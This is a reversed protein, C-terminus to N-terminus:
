DIRKKLFVILLVMPIMLGVSDFGPLPKGVSTESSLNGSGLKQNTGNWVEDIIFATIVDFDVICYDADNRNFQVFVELPAYANVWTTGPRVRMTWHYSFTQNTSLKQRCELLQEVTTPGDLVEFAPTGFEHLKVFFVQLTTKITIEVRINFIEGRKLSPHATANLWEGETNQFWAHVSGHQCEGAHVLPSVCSSFFLIIILVIVLTKTMKDTRMLVLPINM